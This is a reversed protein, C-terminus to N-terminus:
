SRWGPPLDLDSGFYERIGPVDDPELRSIASGPRKLGRSDAEAQWGARIAAARRAIEEPTPDGPGPGDTDCDM